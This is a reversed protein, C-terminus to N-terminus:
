TTNTKHDDELQKMFKLLRAPVHVSELENKESLERDVLYCQLITNSGVDLIGIFIAAIMYSTIFIMFLPVFPDKVEEYEDLMCGMLLYSIWTVTVSILCKAIFIFVDSLGHVMSFKVSNKLMLLFAHLASSCFSENSLALYIYANTTIYRIFKDFCSICCRCCCLLCTTCCNGGTAGTLADGLREFAWRIMCILSLAFSGLALSGMHYRMSWRYGKCVESDGPIGDDDPIDKRSFYWSITSAIIVFENCAIIFSVIWFISFFCLWVFWTTSTSWSYEKMQSDSKGEVAGDSITGISVLASIWAIIVCISLLFYLCPVLIIRKTDAFWDAATDIIAIAIRLSRFCCILFIYYLGAMSFSCFMAWWLGTTDANEDAELDDEKQNYFAFGLGIFGAQIGLVSIWALYLAFWDMLKIYILTLAFSISIATLIVWRCRYVDTVWSGFFLQDEYNKVIHDWQDDTLNDKVVTCYDLIVTTQYLPQTECNMDPTNTTYETNVCGIDAGDGENSTPCELVCVGSEFVYSNFDPDEIVAYNSVWLYPTDKVGDSFGCIRGQGDVPALIEALNGNSYGYIAVGMLFIM